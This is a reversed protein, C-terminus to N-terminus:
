GRKLHQLSAELVEDRGMAIGEATRRVRLDPEIPGDPQPTGSITAVLPVDLEIRSNPLTLFFFAGGNLGRRNGGLTTGVLTGVRERKVIQAFQFTASSNSADVLVGLKGTYRPSNPEIRDMASGDDFRTMRFLDTRAEPVYRPSTASKGWDYFSPDWTDLNGRLYSPVHRYRTYRAQSAVDLPRVVVHRLIETGVDIGGENGRLDIVLDSGNASLQAFTADLFVKWDWKSNYLAWTPMRLYGTRPELQRFSWPVVGGSPVSELPRRQEPAIYRAEVVSPGRDRPRRVVLRASEGKPPFCLPYFVDFAEYRGVGQVELDARRKADNAGDARAMRLLRRLVAKAPRGDLSVIETGPPLTGNSTQDKTVVMRDDLWIFHFPLRNRGGFLAEATAKPQNYFNAHTHSCQVKAAFESFALFAEGLTAGNSVDARLQRFHGEMEAPTNYRLLGPHLQRYTRELISVDALLNTGPIEQPHFTLLAVAPLMEPM